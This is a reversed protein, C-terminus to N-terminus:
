DATLQPSFLKTGRFVRLVCFTLLCQLASEREKTHKTHKTTFRGTNGQREQRGQRNL